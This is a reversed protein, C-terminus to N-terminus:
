RARSITYLRDRRCDNLIHAVSCRRWALFYFVGKGTLDWAQYWNVTAVINSLILTGRIYASLTDAMSKHGWTHKLSGIGRATTLNLGNPLTLYGTMHGRPVDM